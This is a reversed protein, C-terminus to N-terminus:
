DQERRRPRGVIGPRYSMVSGAPILWISGRKVAGLRGQSALVRIRRASLGRAEAAQSVTVLDREEYTNGDPDVLLYRGSGDPGVLKWGNALDASEM